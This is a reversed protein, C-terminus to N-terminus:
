TLNVTPVSVRDLVESLRESPAGSSDRLILYPGSVPGELNCEEVSGTITGM